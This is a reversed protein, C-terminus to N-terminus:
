IFLYLFKIKNKREANEGEFASISSCSLDSQTRQHNWGVSVDLKRTFRGALFRFLTRFGM